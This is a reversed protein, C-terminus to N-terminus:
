SNGFRLGVEFGIWGWHRTGGLTTYRDDVILIAPQTLPRTTRDSGFFWNASPGVALAFQRNLKVEILTSLRIHQNWDSSRGGSSFLHHATGELSFLTRRSLTFSTGLGYGASLRPSGEREFSTGATLINYFQRVGTRYTLNLLNVENTALELRRFGGQRVHSFLGIPVGGSSDALNILGLQGGTIRRARNAIGAIQWGQVDRHTYNILGALQLGRISQGALNLLGGIQVVNPLDGRTINFLGGIQVGRAQQLNLNYLGGVQVGAVAGRNMNFLGGVQVGKMSGGNMNFLGGVQTGDVQRGVLNGLGGAQVGQVDTQVLNFLGGVEVARVGFSYGALANISVRNIIRGSLRHNTGIYPLFSVQWDRYLTDRSLNVDHIAQQASVFLRIIGNKGRDLVSPATRAPTSDIPTAPVAIPQVPASALPIVPKTTDETVRIPLTQVSSTLPLPTLRISVSHSAKTRITVTEGMYAQKRVDLRVTPLDAPLRIRYYGFPNSVTSALTTKEFISAQAIREGTLENLIYGDLLLHKPASDPPDARVLIIHNGRSKYTVSNACVQSLVQRVPVNTLRVTVLAKGDIRAPNYSFEFRGARSIERLANELTANRINVTILRELPPVSQAFLRTQILLFLLLICFRLSNM